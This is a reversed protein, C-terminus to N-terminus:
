PTQGGPARKARTFSVAGFGVNGSADVAQVNINMQIQEGSDPRVLQVRERGSPGISYNGQTGFSANFKKIIKDVADTIRVDLRVPGAGRLVEGQKPSLIEITPPTTDSVCVPKSATQRQGNTQDLMSLEVVTPMAGLGVDLAFNVGSGTKGTSSSWAFALNTGGLADRSQSANLKVTAGKPGTAEICSGFNLPNELAIIPPLAISIPVSSNFRIQGFLAPAAGECHQEFDAAFQQVVGFADVVSEHVTFSGFLMNCGRGDGSVDLGPLHPQQFPYREANLYQGPVLAQGSPAAFSANWFLFPFSSIGVTVFGPAATASFSGDAPTIVRTVGGGIYDGPESKLVLVNQQGFVASSLALLFVGAFRFLKM